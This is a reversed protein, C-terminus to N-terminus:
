VHNQVEFEFLFISQPVSESPNMCTRDLVQVSVLLFSFLVFALSRFM